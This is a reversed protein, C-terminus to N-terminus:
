TTYYTPTGNATLVNPTTVLAQASGQPSGDFGVYGSFMMTSNDPWRFRFARVAKLDNVIKMEAQAADSVDWIHDFTYTIAAALGPMQTRQGIHITTTDIFDFGGNSSSVQTMSTVSTGYTIEKATGSTFTDFLTTDIGGGGIQAELEFTNATVNVVRFDRENLQVMGLCEVHIADGNSLGHATVTVVGPAAKTISTITLATGYTGMFVSVNSWTKPKAM